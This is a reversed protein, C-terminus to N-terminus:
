TELYMISETDDWFNSRLCTGISASLPNFKVRSTIKNREFDYTLFFVHNNVVISAKALRVEGSRTTSQMKLHNGSAFNMLSVPLVLSKKNSWISKGGDELTWLDVTGNTALLLVSYEFVAITGGYNMLNPSSTAVDLPLKILAFEESRLDFSMVVSTNRDICAGYYLVGNISIGQSCPRHPPPPPSQIRRWSVGPGLVLVHHESRVVRGEEKSEEWVVNLAKYEDHVPDHCFYDWVNNDNPEPMITPLEVLQKTTLNCILLRGQVRVCLLGRLASVFEGGLMWPMNLDRKVLSVDSDPNPNPSSSLLAFESHNEKNVLHMFLRRQQRTNLFLNTFCRSSILSCWHKSVCKLRVVSKAPLRLLIERLLDEPIQLITVAPARRCRRSAGVQLKKKKLEKMATLRFSMEM